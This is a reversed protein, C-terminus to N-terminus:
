YLWKMVKPKTQQLPLGVYYAQKDNKEIRGNYIHNKYVSGLEKVVFARTYISGKLRGRLELNGECYIEGNIQAEEAMQIQAEYNAPEDQQSLYIVSGNVTSFDGLQISNRNTPISQNNTELQENIIVLASPYALHVYSALTINKTAIAQFNGETGTAIEIYPANLIVDHLKANPHVRILSDSQVIINGTLSIGKLDIPHHQHFVWTTDTYSRVWKDQQKIDIYQKPTRSFEKEYNLLQERNSLGPLRTRSSQASGYLLQSGYYSHGSINGRKIGGRPLFATGEIYTDGVVALPQREDQLYLTPPNTQKGGTLATKAFYEKGISVEVRTNDFVAWPKKVIQILTDGSKRLYPIEGQIPYDSLTNFIQNSLEISSKYKESKIKIKYHLYVVSILSSLLLAIIVAIYLVYQLAGAKIQYRIFM